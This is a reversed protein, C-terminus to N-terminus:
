DGHHGGRLAHRLLAAPVTDILALEDSCHDILQHAADLRVTIESAVARQDDVTPPVDIQVSLIEDISIRPLQGPTTVKAARRLFTGSRMFAAVFQADALDGNIDFAFQDVSSCGDFEAIWVKNLYPRLYGYVIQGRRFTPKRGALKALNIPMSGIRRGTDPEIHELGVFTAQGETRDGPHIINNFRRILDGLPRSHWTKPKEKEFVQRLYAAPLAQATSLRDEAASRITPITAFAEAIREQISWTPLVIEGEVLRNFLMRERVGGRALRLILEEGWTSRLWYYFYRHHLIGKRTRVAVYDPSTIGSPEGDDVMAISGLLIRMPNYFITGPEVLKYRHPSKGVREKAPALGNRTAGLVAYQNWDDGVGRTVEILCDRLSWTRCGQTDPPEILSVSTM